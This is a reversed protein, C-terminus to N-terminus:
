RTSRWRPMRCGCPKPIGAWTSPWGHPLTCCTRIARVRPSCRSCSTMRRRGSTNTLQTLASGPDLRLAAQADRVAEPWAVRPPVLKGGVDELHALVLAEAAKIFSPDVALAQAFDTKAEGVGADGRDIATRGRLYFTYAEMSSEHRPDRTADASLALQLARAIASAIQVQLRLLDSFNRDYVDSWLRSGDHANVLECTVRVREGSHRITGEVIYSAGLQAGIARLDADHGRFAFSSTRGIVRLRPIRSLLDLIEEAMGDAFGPQSPDADLDVFPLVAISKEGAFVIPASSRWPRTALLAVAICGVLLAGALWMRRGPRTRDAPVDPPEAAPVPPAGDPQLAGIFRYGRRPLTEIYRPHEADDGLALRLRRVAANLGADFDVVVNPWLREILQERTVVEGPRELLAQLVQLPHEQLRLRMDGKSLEGSNGDLLWGDFRFRPKM